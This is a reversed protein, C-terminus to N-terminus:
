PLGFALGDADAALKLQLAPAPRTEDSRSADLAREIDTPTGGKRNSPWYGKHGEPKEWWTRGEMASEFSDIGGPTGPALWRSRGDLGGGQGAETCLNPMSTHWISNDMVVMTGAEVPFRILNPMACQPM